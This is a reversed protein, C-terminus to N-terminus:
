SLIFVAALSPPLSLAPRASTQDACAPLITRAAPSDRQEQPADKGSNKQEKGLLTCIRGRRPRRGGKRDRTEEAVDDRHQRTADRQTHTNTHVLTRAHTVGEPCVALSEEEGADGYGRRCEDNRETAANAMDDNATAGGKASDAWFHTSAGM